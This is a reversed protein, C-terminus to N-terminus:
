PPVFPSVVVVAAATKPKKALLFWGALGLTALAGFAFLKM